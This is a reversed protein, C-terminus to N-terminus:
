ARRASPFMVRFLFGLVALAAIGALLGVIGVSRIAPFMPAAAAALRAEEADFEDWFVPLTDPHGGRRLAGLEYSWRRDRWQTATRTREAYEQDLSAVDGVPNHPWGGGDESVLAVSLPAAGGKLLDQTRLKAIYSISSHGKAQLAACLAHHVDASDLAGGLVILGSLGEVADGYGIEALRSHEPDTVVFDGLGLHAAFTDYPKGGWATRWDATENPEWRPLTKVRKVWDLAALQYRERGFHADPNLEIAEAILDRAREIEDIREAHAGDRFWRHAVFTGLNALYRYRHEPDDVDLADLRAKKREMWGIADDGRGLRDCAVGADDYLGLDVSLTPDATGADILPEVRDLRMEYYLPPHSAFRGTLVDLIEPLGESEAELTDRDWLCALARPVPVAALLSIILAIAALLRM